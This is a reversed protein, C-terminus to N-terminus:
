VKDSNNDVLVPRASAVLTKLTVYDPKGSGLMPLETVHTIRRAVALEQGGLLKASRQLMGRSLQPDTTFLLTSEGSAAILEVLAAHQFRPSAHQAIREVMELAVMEGAIKAFRKIRGLVNFFGDADNFRGRAM